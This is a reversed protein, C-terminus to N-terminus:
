RSRYKTCSFETEHRERDEQKAEKFRMEAKSFLASEREPAYKEALKAALASVIAEQWLLPIDLTNAAAGPVQINRMYYYVLSHTADNIVPYVHIQPTAVREFWFSHPIGAQDKDALQMYDARGIPTLETDNGLSDRIVMDLIAIGGTQFNYAEQGSVLVETAQAITWLNAGKNAWTGFVYGLSRRASVVHKGILSTPDIGCREFAEECVEAIEPDFTYTGSTAM